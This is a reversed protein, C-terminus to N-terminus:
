EQNEGGEEHVEAQKKSRRGGPANAAVSLLAASTSAVAAFSSLGARQSSATSDNGQAALPNFTVQKMSDMQTGEIPGQQTASINNLIIGEPSSSGQHASSKNNGAAIETTNGPALARQPADMLSSKETATNEVGQGGAVNASIDAILHTPPSLKPAPPKGSRVVNM